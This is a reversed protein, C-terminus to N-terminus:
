DTLQIHQTHVENNQKFKQTQYPINAVRFSLEANYLVSAYQHIM